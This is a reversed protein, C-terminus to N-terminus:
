RSFVPNPPLSSRLQDLARMSASDPPAHFTLVHQGASYPIDLKTRTLYLDGVDPHRM